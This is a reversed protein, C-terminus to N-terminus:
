YILPILFKVERQYNGYLAGFEAVLFQEEIWAKQWLSIIALLLGFLSAVTSSVLTTGLLGLLMGAYIPHRVIAYPGSRIFQQGETIAVEGRWNTRLSHRSWIAFAVGAIVFVTGMVHILMTQPVVLWGLSGSVSRGLLILLFGLYLLGTNLLTFTRAVKRKSSHRRPTAFSWYIWFVAWCISIIAWYPAPMYSENSRKTPQGVAPPTGRTIAVPYSRHTPSHKSQGTLDIM